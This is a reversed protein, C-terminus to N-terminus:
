APFEGRARLEEKELTTKLAILAVELQDDDPERTRYTETAM